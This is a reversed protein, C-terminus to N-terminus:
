AWLCHRSVGGRRRKYAYGSLVINNREEYEQVFRKDEKERQEFPARKRREEDERLLREFELREAEERQRLEEISEIRACRNRLELNM